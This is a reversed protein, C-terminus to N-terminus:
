EHEGGEGWIRLGFGQLDVDEGKDGEGPGGRDVSVRLFAWLTLPEGAHDYGHDDTDGELLWRWSRKESGPDAEEQWGKLVRACAQLAMRWTRPESIAIRWEDPGEETEVKPLSGVAEFLKHELAACRWPSWLHVTVQPTEFVLGHFAIRM